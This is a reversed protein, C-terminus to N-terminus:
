KQEGEVQLAIHALHFKNVEHSSGRCGAFHLWFKVGGTQFPKGVNYQVNKAILNGNRIDIIRQAERGVEIFGAVNHVDRRSDLAVWKNILYERRWGDLFARHVPEGGPPVRLSELKSGNKALWVAPDQYLFDGGDKACYYRHALVTPIHDWFVPLYVALFGVVARGWASRRSHTIGSRWAARVVGVLITLYIVAVVLYALGIM